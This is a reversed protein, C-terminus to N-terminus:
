EVKRGGDPAMSNEYMADCSKRKQPGPKRASSKSLYKGTVDFGMTLLERQSNTAAQFKTSKHGSTYTAYKFGQYNRKKHSKDSSHTSHVTCSSSLNELECSSSSSAEYSLERNGKETRSGTCNVDNISETSVNVCLESPNLVPPEKNETRNWAFSDAITDHERTKRTVMPITATQRLITYSHQVKNDYEVFDNRPDNCLVKSHLYLGNLQSEPDVEDYEHAHDEEKASESQISECESSLIPYIQNNNVTSTASAVVYNGKEQSNNHALTSRDDSPKNETVVLRTGEITHTIDVNQICNRSNYARSQMIQRYTPQYMTTNSAKRERHRGIVNIVMGTAVFVVVIASLRIWEFLYNETELSPLYPIFCSNGYKLTCEPRSTTINAEVEVFISDIPIDKDDWAVYTGMDVYSVKRIIFSLTSDRLVCSDIRDSYVHGFETCNAHLVDYKVVVFKLTNVMMEIKISTVQTTNCMFSLTTSVGDQVLLIRRAVLISTNGKVMSDAYAMYDGSDMVNVNLLQFSLCNNTIKIMEIRGTYTRMISANDTKNKRLDVIILNELKRTVHSLFSIELVDKGFTNLLDIHVTANDGRLYVKRKLDKTNTTGFMLFIICITTSINIM